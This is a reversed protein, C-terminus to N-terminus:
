RAKVHCSVRASSKSKGKSMAHRVCRAKRLGKTSGRKSMGTHIM